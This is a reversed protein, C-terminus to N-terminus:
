IMVTEPIGKNEKKNRKAFVKASLPRAAAANQEKVPRTVSPMTEMQFGLNMIRFKLDKPSNENEYEHIKPNM